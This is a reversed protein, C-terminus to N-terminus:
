AQRARPRVEPALHRRTQEHARCTGRRRASLSRPTAPEAQGSRDDSPQDPTEDRHHDRSIGGHRFHGRRSVDGQLHLRVQLVQRPAGGRRLRRRHRAARDQKAADDHLHHICYANDWFIRFDGAATEMEALRRVVEGSYTVGSPNSYKPVCWIGKVSDDEAVLREVLDM